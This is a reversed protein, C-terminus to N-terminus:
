QRHQALEEVHRARGYLIWPAGSAFMATRVTLGGARLVTGDSANPVVVNACSFELTAGPFSTVFIRGEEAAVRVLALHRGDASRAFGWFSGRAVGRRNTSAREAGTAEGVKAFLWFDLAGVALFLAPIGALWLASM